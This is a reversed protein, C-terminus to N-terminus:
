TSAILPGAEVIAVGLVPISTTETSGAEDRSAERWWAGERVYYSTRNPNEALLELAESDYVRFGSCERAVGFPVSFMLTGDPKLRQRLSRVALADDGTSTQSGYETQLGIHELVSISYIFDYRRDLDWSQGLECVDGQFFRFSPHTYGPSRLDIADVHYGLALLHPAMLSGCCGVDLIDAETGRKLAERLFRPIEVIRETFAAQGYFLFCRDFTKLYAFGRPWLAHVYRLIKYLWARQPWRKEYTFVKSNALERGFARGECSMPM